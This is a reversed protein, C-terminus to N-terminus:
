LTSYRGPWLGAAGNIKFSSTIFHFVLLLLVFEDGDEPFQLVGGPDGRRIGIGYIKVVQQM